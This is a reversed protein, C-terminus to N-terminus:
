LHRFLLCETNQDLDHKGITEPFKKLLVKFIQMAFKVLQLAEHLYFFFFCCSANALLLAPPPLAPNVFHHWPATTAAKAM